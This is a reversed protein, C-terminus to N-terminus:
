NVNALELDLLVLNHGHKAGMEQFENKSLRM